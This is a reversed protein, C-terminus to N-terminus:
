SASLAEVFMAHVGAADLAQIIDVNAPQGAVGMYDIVTQGRTLSGNLEVSVHHRASQTILSPDLTIAMALPDPLLYAPRQFSERLRTATEASIAHFFRGGVTDIACLQDFQEWSFGHALTTEWSLM